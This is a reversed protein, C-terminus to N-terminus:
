EYYLNLYGSNCGPSLSRLWLFSTVAMNIVYSSYDQSISLTVASIVHITRVAAIGKLLYTPCQYQCMM